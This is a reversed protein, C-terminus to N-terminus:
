SLVVGFPPVRSVGQSPKGEWGGRPALERPDVIRANCVACQLKGQWKVISGGCGAHTLANM